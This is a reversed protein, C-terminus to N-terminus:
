KQRTQPQQGQLVKFIKFNQFKSVQFVWVRVVFLCSFEFGFFDLSSWARINSRMTTFGFWIWLHFNSTDKVILWNQWQIENSSKKIQEWEMNTRQSLELHWLFPFKLPEQFWSESSFCFHIKSLSEENKFHIPALEWFTEHVM